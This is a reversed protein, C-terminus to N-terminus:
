GCPAEALRPRSQAGVAVFSRILGHACPSATDSQPEARRLRHLIVVAVPANVLSPVGAAYEQTLVSWMGWVVANGLVIWYTPASVGDLRNSRLTRVAQPITLVCSLLAGSWALVAIIV